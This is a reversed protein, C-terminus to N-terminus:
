KVEFVYHCLGLFVLNVYHESALFLLYCVAQYIHLMDENKGLEIKDEMRFLIDCRLLVVSFIRLGCMLTPGTKGM